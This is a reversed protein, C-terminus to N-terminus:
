LQQLCRAMPKQRCIHSPVISLKSFYYFMVNILKKQIRKLANIRVNTCNITSLYIIPLYKNISRKDVFKLGYDDQLNTILSQDGIWKEQLYIRNIASILCSKFLSLSRM